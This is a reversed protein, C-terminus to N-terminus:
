RGGRNDFEGLGSQEGINIPEAVEPSDNTPNNVRKSVPYTKLQEDPFPDMVSRWEDPGGDGLWIDIDDPELMVPMRDHIEGVIENADCTLITCTELSNGNSGCTEWLGAYAFPDGDQREIRYPQKSGRRGQWEYFGDALILCRRDTFASRFMPKEHVTESRANIPRPSDEPDDFWAPLLGWELLDIEDPDDNQIIVLDDRPAINHRKPITIDNAPTAGFM